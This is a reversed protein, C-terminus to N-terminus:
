GRRGGRKSALAALLVGETREALIQPSFERVIKAVRQASFERGQQLANGLGHALLQVNRPPVLFDATSLIHRADGVDTAVCPVGCAMAEGLVNPFGESTSSLCLVDLGSYLECLDGAREMWRIADAIQLQRALRKLETALPEVATGVCVLQAAPHLQRLTAFARLLTEHDKMPDVRAVCGILQAAEPLGWSERLRRRAGADFAFARAEIGNHIVVVNPCSRDGCLHRAGTESNVIVLDAYRVLLRELRAALRTLWDLGPQSVDSARVGCALLWRGGLFQLLLAMLNSAPLLAYLVDPQEARVTRVLRRFFTFNRWRGRKELDVIRVGLERLQAEFPEGGYYLLVVVENGRAMLERCLVCLQRQAGGVGMSRVLFVIKM